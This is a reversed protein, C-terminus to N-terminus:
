RTLLNPYIGSHVAGRWFQRELRPRFEIKGVEAKSRTEFLAVPLYDSRLNRALSNLNAELMKEVSRVRVTDETISYELVFLKKTKEIM